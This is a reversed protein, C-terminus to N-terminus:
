QVTASRLANRLEAAKKLFLRSTLSDIGHKALAKGSKELDDAFELDSRLNERYQFMLQPTMAIARVEGEGEGCDM